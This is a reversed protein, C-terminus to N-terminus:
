ADSPGYSPELRSDSLPPAVAAWVTGREPDSEGVIAKGEPHNHAYAVAHRGAGFLDRMMADLEPGYLVGTRTELRGRKNTIVVRASQIM